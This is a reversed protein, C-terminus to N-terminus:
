LNNWSILAVSLFLFSEQMLLTKSLSCLFSGGFLWLASECKFKRPIEVALFSTQTIQEKAFGHVNYLDITFTDNHGAFNEAM